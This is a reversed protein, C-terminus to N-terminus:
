RDRLNIEYVVRLLDGELRRLKSETITKHLVKYWEKCHPVSIDMGKLVVSIVVIAMSEASHDLIFEPAVYCDRLVTFCSETVPHANFETPMWSRLQDLYMCMAKFPHEFYLDFDLERLVVFELKAIGRRIEWLQTDIKLPVDNPHLIRHIVNVVDRIGITNDEEHKVALVLSTTALTYNCIERAINRQLLRYMMMIATCVTKNHAELRIGARILLEYIKRSSPRNTSM